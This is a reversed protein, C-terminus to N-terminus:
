LARLTVRRRGCVQTVQLCRSGLSHETLCDPSVVSGSGAAGGPHVSPVTSATPARPAGPRSTPGARRALTHMLAAGLAGNAPGQRSGGTPAAESVLLLCSLGATGESCNRELGSRRRAAAARDGRMQGM